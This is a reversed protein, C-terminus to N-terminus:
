PPTGPPLHPVGPVTVGHKADWRAWCDALYQCQPQRIYGKGGVYGLIDIVDPGIHGCNVCQKPTSM